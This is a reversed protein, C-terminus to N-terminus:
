LCPASLQPPSSLAPSSPPTPRVEMHEQREQSKQELHDRYELLERTWKSKINKYKSHTHMTGPAEVAQAAKPNLFQTFNIKKWVISMEDHPSSDPGFSGEFKPPM